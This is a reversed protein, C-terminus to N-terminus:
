PRADIRELAPAPRYSAGRQKFARTSFLVAHDRVLPGLAARVQEVQGLV